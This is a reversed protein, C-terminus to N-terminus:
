PHPGTRRKSCLSKVPPKMSASSMKPIREALQSRLWLARLRIRDYNHFIGNQGLQSRPTCGAQLSRHVIARCELATRSLPPEGQCGQCLPNGNGRTAIVVEDRLSYVTECRSQPHRGESMLAPALHQFGSSKRNSHTRESIRSLVLDLFEDGRAVFSSAFTACLFLM